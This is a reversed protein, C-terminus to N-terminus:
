LVACGKRASHCQLNVAVPISAIHRARTEIHVALATTVGGYGQPGIGLANIDDRWKRELEAVFSDSPVTGIDRLLARKALVAVSDFSGGIGVGVILPPCSGPGARIITDLVFEHIAVLGEAPTFIRLQSGNDAGGGKPLVILTLRDGSVIRMHIVAPTNDETNKGNFPRDLMSGRLFSKQYGQRVGEHIAEELLGGQIRVDQGIDAFVVTVGGDQCLAVGSTAAYDANELIKTLTLQGIPSTERFRAQELAHLVDKPLVTNASQCLYRITDAITSADITRM